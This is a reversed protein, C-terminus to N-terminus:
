TVDGQAQHEILVPDQRKRADAKVLRERMAAMSDNMRRGFNELSEKDTGQLQLAGIGAPDDEDVAKVTLGLDSMSLGLRSVLDTIPKFAPNSHYDYVYHTEGTIADVYTLAVPTGERSLEVKPTKIVVGDALVTQLCMQLAATLAALIDAHIRGLHKPNRQEVAAHHLMFLETQKVCAPQNACWIPDVDCTECFAYKGPRAPFFTAVRAEMGHKMANFRTLRTEQPTPHGALNSASAAKGESTIPGTAEQHAKMLAREWGAQPQNEAHCRPCNAYYRHPHWATAPDDEVLDPVASFGRRCDACRFNVHRLPESWDKSPPM